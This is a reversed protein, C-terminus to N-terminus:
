VRLVAGKYIRVFIGSAIEGNICSMPMAHKVAMHWLFRLCEAPFCYQGLTSACQEATAVGLGGSLHATLIPAAALIQKCHQNDLDAAALSSLLTAVELCLM